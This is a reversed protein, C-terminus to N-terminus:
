HHHNHNHNHNHNHHQKEHEKEKNNNHNSLFEEEGFTENETLKNIKVEKFHQIKRKM